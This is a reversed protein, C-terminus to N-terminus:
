AGFPRLRARGLTVSAARNELHQAAVLRAAATAIAGVIPPRRAALQLSVVASHVILQTRPAPLHRARAGPPPAGEHDQGLGGHLADSQCPRGVHAVQQLDLADPRLLRLLIALRNELDHSIALLHRQIPLLELKGLM